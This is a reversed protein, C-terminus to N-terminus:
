YAGKTRRTSDNPGMSQAAGSLATFPQLMSGASGDVDMKLSKCGGEGNELLRARVHSEVGDVRKTADLLIDCMAKVAWERELPALHTGMVTNVMRAATTLTEIREDFKRKREPFDNKAPQQTSDDVDPIDMDHILLSADEDMATSELAPAGAACQTCRCHKVADGNCRDCRCNDAISLYADSSVETQSTVECRPPDCSIGAGRGEAKRMIEASELSATQYSVIHRLGFFSPNLQKRPLVRLVHRCAGFLWQQFMYCSCLVRGQTTIIVLRANEMRMERQFARHERPKNSKGDPNLSCTKRQVWWAQVPVESERLYGNFQKLVHAELHHLDPPVGVNYHPAQESQNARILRGQPSLVAALNSADDEVAPKRRSHKDLVDERTEHHRDARLMSAVVPASLPAKKNVTNRGEPGHKESSFSSEVRGSESIGLTVTRTFHMEAIGSSKSKINALWGVVAEFQDDSLSWGDTASHLRNIYATVQALGNALQKDNCVIMMMDIAFQWITKGVEHILKCGATATQFAMWGAHTSCNRTAMRGNADAATKAKLERGANHITPDGDAVVLGIAAAWTEGLLTIIGEALFCSWQVQTENSLLCNALCVNGGAGTRRDVGVGDAAIVRALKYGGANSGHTSDAILVEPQRAAVDAEASTSWM